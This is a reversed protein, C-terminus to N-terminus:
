SDCKGTEPDDQETGVAKYKECMFSIYRKKKWDVKIESCQGTEPCVTLNICDPFFCCDRCVDLIEGSKYREEMEPNTVDDVINGICDSSPKNECKGITGDPYILRTSDNDSMCHIVRLNPLYSLSGLLGKGRLKDDLAVTQAAILSRDNYSLPEFGVGEYVAHAYCTFRKQKGFRTELEDILDRLDNYNSDTVNFRINVAIGSNLLDSINRLVREYPNDKPNIYAKTDNYIAETGDLTIQVSILNWEKKATEIVRDDFLYANSVMTSKFKIEREKLGKCIQSIRKHAVLPEGGFWGIEIPEGKCMRAMYDIVEDATKETMTCHKHDSQFCYYCRANCETTPLITFGTVRKAPELKKLLARLQEVSRNENFNEPVMYHGAILEDMGKVHMTPAGEFIKREAEDLLVLESTVVNYLLLGDEVEARLLFKMPRYVVGEAPAPRKWLLVINKKGEKVTKM